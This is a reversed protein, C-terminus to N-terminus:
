STQDLRGIWLSTGTGDDVALWWREGVGVLSVGQQAGVPAAVPLEVARWGDGRDVSLWGGYREGDSVVALVQEASVALAGVSPIGAAVRGFGGAAVWGASEQRWAGFARGRLGVGVPLGDVLVVRQMEEYAETGPLTSRQWGRGDGSVWAAPDRDIRGPALVGGVALWGSPGAVADFAWTVGRDDSALEPAGEILTFEAADPSVWAAAGSSRNGVILWGGPGAALRSVNVAKPGGYTEFSAAVEVLTGDGRQWWTSVRPNGHAGGVKGGVAAVVGDRCAVSFLVSRRGYYSDAVVPVPTWVAGDASSWVAPSTGGAADAVAGAAYWRGGCAALDRLVIRGSGDPPPLRVQRWDARLPGPDAAEREPAPCGALLLVLLAGATLFRHGGTVRRRRVGPQRVRAFWRAGM